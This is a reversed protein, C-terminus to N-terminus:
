LYGTYFIVCKKFISRCTLNLTKLPINELFINVVTNTCSHCRFGKYPDGSLGTKATNFITSIDDDIDLTRGLPLDKMAFEPVLTATKSPIISTTAERQKRYGM